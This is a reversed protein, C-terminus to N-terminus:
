RNFIDAECNAVLKRDRGDSAAEYYAATEREETIVSADYASLGYEGTLRDRIQDPLEPLAVRLEDVEQQAIVLPLLFAQGIHLLYFVLFFVILAM